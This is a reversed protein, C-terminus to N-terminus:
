RGIALVATGPLSGEAIGNLADNADHLAFRVVSATVPISGALALFEVADQRTYNAVSRIQREWWLHDYDFAPMGDLHIANIAVVGGRDLARLAHVVVSGAPAFTIAADLASPVREDYGGAWGAGLSRAEDQERESRTCVFVECEWARAVQIALRASAGFGFLGLRGGRQIGSVKLSRYGIVGGCLLPAAEVDGLAGPVRLAYDARVLMLTAFGGNNDWGTFTAADCLNERGTDCFRCSGCTGGLWGAAARDGVSWGRVEAGLELVRGVVQHGPITPSRRPPLDGQVIQLDTRCVACAVVELLLEGPGPSPDPVVAPLLSRSGADVLMAEM